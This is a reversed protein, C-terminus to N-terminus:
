ESPMSFFDTLNQSNLLLTKVCSKFQKFNRSKYLVNSNLIIENWLRPGRFRFTFLEYNKRSFPEKMTKAKTKSISRMKYKCTEDFSFISRLASPALGRLSRYVLCLVQLLNIGYVNLIEMDRFLSESPYLMDKSNIVKVAHKQRRM